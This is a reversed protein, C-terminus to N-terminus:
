LWCMDKYWQYTERIGERLETYRFEPFLNLIESGDCLWYQKSLEKLKDRNFVAAQNFLIRYIYENVFASIYGLTYPIKVILIERGVVESFINRIERIEYHQNEAVFYISFSTFKDLNEVILKIIKILDYIYTFQIYFKEGFVPLVGNKALKFYIYMDKDYPGYVACPRLIIIKTKDSYKLLEKEALLKSRGYHSVPECLDNACKYSLCCSPGAAAQSSIFIIGKISPNFEAIVEILNKTGIHNVEYYTNNNVCRLVAACHIIVDIDCVAEKLSEKNRVDGYFVNLKDLVSKLHDTKSTKRILINLNHESKSVLYNVLSSGIFGSAGTILINM